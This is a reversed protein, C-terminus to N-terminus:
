RVLQKIDIIGVLFCLYNPFGHESLVSNLIHALLLKHYSVVVLPLYYVVLVDLELDIFVM